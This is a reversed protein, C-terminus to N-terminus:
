QGERKKRAYREAEKALITDRNRKYYERKYDPNREAWARRSDRVKEPNEQDYRNKSDRACPRCYAKGGEPFALESNPHGNICEGVPWDRGATRRANEFNSLLRLHDVNVCRPKKCLHDVTMGDPIQGNVHVWAARHATTGRRKGNGIQWGIQAYGHSAVSYNSIRCGDEDVTANTYAREAVRDPIEFNKPLPM